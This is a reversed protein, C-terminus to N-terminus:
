EKTRIKIPLQYETTVPVGMKTAPSLYPMENVISNLVSALEPLKNKIEQSSQLEKLTVEGENDIRLVLVVTESIDEESSFENRSLAETFHNKITTRFCNTKEEDILQECSKFSPSVNVTTFDVITDLTEKDGKSDNTFYNCSVLSSIVLIFLFARGIM